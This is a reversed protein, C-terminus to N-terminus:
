DDRLACTLLYPGGIHTYNAIAIVEYWEGNLQVRDAVSAAVPSYVSVLHRTRDSHDLRELTARTAGFHWAVDVSTDTQARTTEGFIDVSNSGYTRLTVTTRIGPIAYIDIM